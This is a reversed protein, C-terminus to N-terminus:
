RADADLRELVRKGEEATLEVRFKRLGDRVREWSLRGSGETDMSGFTTRLRVQFPLKCESCNISLLRSCLDPLLRGDRMKLRRAGEIDMSGFTNQLRVQFSLMSNSVFDSPITSWLHPTLSGHAQGSDEEGLRKRM